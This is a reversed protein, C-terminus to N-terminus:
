LPSDSLGAAPLWYLERGGFSLSDEAGALELAQAISSQAPRRALLVVQLKGALRARTPEDFPEAAAIELLEAGSRIFTAVPYGLLRALGAEILEGLAADGREHPDSFVVNGSARFVGAEEMGLTQFHGRLEDNSVRRRGLNIGKLFAAHDPM